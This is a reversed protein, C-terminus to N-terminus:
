KNFRKNAEKFLRRSILYTLGVEIRAYHLKSIDDFCTICIKTGEMDIIDFSFMKGEGRQKQFHHMEGFHTVHEKM